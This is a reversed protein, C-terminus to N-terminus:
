HFLKLAMHKTVKYSVNTNIKYKKLDKQGHVYKKRRFSLAM